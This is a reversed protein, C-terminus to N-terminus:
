HNSQNVQHNASQDIPPIVLRNPQNIEGHFQQSTPLNSYTPQHIPQNIQENTLGSIPQSNLFGKCMRFEKTFFAQVLSEFGPRNSRAQEDM